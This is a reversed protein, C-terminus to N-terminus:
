KMRWLRNPVSERVASDALAAAGSAKEGTGTSRPVQHLELRLEMSRRLHTAVHREADYRGNATELMRELHCGSCPCTGEHAEPEFIEGTFHAQYEQNNM